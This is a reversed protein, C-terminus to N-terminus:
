GRRMGSPAGGPPVELSWEIRHLLLDVGALTYDVRFRATIVEAIRALTWCQDEDGGSAAPGADLATELERL